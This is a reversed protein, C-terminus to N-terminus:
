PFMRPSPCNDRRCVYGSAAVLKKFEKIDAAPVGRAEEQAIFEELRHTKIAETLTLGLM